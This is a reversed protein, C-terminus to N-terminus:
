CACGGNDENVNIQITSGPFDDNYDQSEEQALAQRAITEFAQEVNM